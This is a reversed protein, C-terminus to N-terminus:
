ITRHKDLEFVAFRLQSLISSFFLIIIEIFLFIIHYLEVNKLLSYISGIVIFMNILSINFIKRKFQIVVTYTELLLILCTLYIFYTLNGLSFYFKDNNAM